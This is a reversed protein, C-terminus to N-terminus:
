ALNALTSGEYSCTVGAAPVGYFGFSLHKIGLKALTSGEYSCTVGAGGGRGGGRRWALVVYRFQVLMPRM